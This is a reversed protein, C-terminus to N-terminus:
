WNGGVRYEIASLLSKKFESKTFEAGNTKIGVYNGIEEETYYVEEKERNTRMAGNVLEFARIRTAVKSLNKATIEPCGTRMLCVCLPFLENDTMEEYGKVKRVDYTLAM